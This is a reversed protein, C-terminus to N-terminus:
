RVEVRNPMEGFGYYRSSVGSDSVMVVRFGSQVGGFPKGVPGTTIMAMPDDAAEANQHYHGAFVAAVGYQHFMALYRARQVLPINFYQDPEAADKLFYPHHEFVVIPKAGERRARALAAELWREQAAFEVRVLQASDIITSNLVIGTFKGRRFVYQDPGFVKVYTAVSASTPTNGVDHNGPVNYLPISADLQRAIRWYEAAQAADGPKNILDGTVVVFAPHLRNATAIAMEFNATEQAFSSDDAYMGFQPDSMQIFFFPPSGAGRDSSAGTGALLVLAVVPGSVLRRTVRPRAVM